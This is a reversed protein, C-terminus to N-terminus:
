KSRRKVPGTTTRGDVESASLDVSLYSELAFRVIDSRSPIAGMSEHLEIRKRDIAEELAESIRLNLQSRAM